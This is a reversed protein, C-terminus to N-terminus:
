PKKLRIEDGIKIGSKKLGNPDRVKGIELMNLSSGPYIVISGDEGNMLRNLYTAYMTKNGNIVIKVKEGEKVKLKKIDNTPINLKLLGFNDIHVVEGYKININKLRGLELKRLKEHKAMNNLDGNYGIIKAIYEPYVYKGGFPIHKTVPIRYLSRCGFDRILWSFVGTNRGIFIIGNKTEGIIREPQEKIPNIISYLIVKPPYEDALLRLLFSGNLLSFPYAQAVPEVIVNNVKIRNKILFEYLQARVENSAVDICDTVTVVFWAM